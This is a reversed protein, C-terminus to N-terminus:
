EGERPNRVWISLRGGSKTEFDQVQQIMRADLVHDVALLMLGDRSVLDRALVMGPLLEGSLVEVGAGSDLADGDIVQRFAAVVNPDYRKGGADLILSKAEDARLHRQVMGGQQLNYYDAALALIRAGLPIALGALGDPFGNGDFRELQSRLIAASGRMDELPMLLEAARAPHKRFQALADGRLLTLPTMLLEDSFGIKGIDHLLAAIFVDQAERGELGLAAAMKRALDAVLRAHGPQNHARLEIMSSFIKITTVFNQKLKANAAVTAEHEARLQRTREEVKAELSQNLAKLEANQRLTLAELRRKDQELQRRELAHRVVLLIDGDEWPKTIYRYIEGGNIADQISQIDSYGTLLLRMTDPWRQRVQALFQAGNMEPMRMDSIVLDVAERALVELGAAGSEALLVRYGAPRLLRRLASLINPEDDVCLVTAANATADPAAAPPQDLATNM